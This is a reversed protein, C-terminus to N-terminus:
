RIRYGGANKKVLPISGNVLYPGNKSIKIKGKANESM